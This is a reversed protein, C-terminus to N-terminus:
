ARAKLAANHSALIPYVPDDPFIAYGDDSTRQGNSLISGAQWILDGTLGSSIVTSLWSAYASAQASSDLGYEEILVPKNAAKQSTAHDLIWQVGWGTPDSTQGWPIPYSHFTGFDISSIKLNADFDIGEGGQYPYSPNGPKNFFGEDGIAVLHNSDISKIYASINTAWKTITQTTCTGSTTGTTGKCRPENALEWGLITPENKYRGVFTSIYKKFANIVNTNTYFLDHPQGQGVIQNVYVDMGGYDAWNNTLAVILRIGNAKAAAIVNDFNRLGDAGTNVTATSGSWRQYYPLGNPSTVENFGRVTTGGAKAIDSFAKNMDTTSLGALGVWYSNAGVVTYKSGNLTFRQGSVKVFGTSAPPPAATTTPGTTTTPKTTTPPPPAATSGTRLCQSYFDNQKVCTLGSACVTPGTWGSGGCQGWEPVTQQASTSAIWLAGVVFSALSLM